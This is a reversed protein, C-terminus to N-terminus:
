LRSHSLFCQRKLTTFVFAKGVAQTCYSQRVDSQVHGGRDERKCSTIWCRCVKEQNEKHHKRLARDHSMGMHHHRLMTSEGNGPTPSDATAAPAPHHLLVLLLSPLFTSLLDRRPMNGRCLFFSSCSAPLVQTTHTTPIHKSFNKHSPLTIPPPICIRTPYQRQRGHRMPPLRLAYVGCQALGGGDIGEIGIRTRLPPSM